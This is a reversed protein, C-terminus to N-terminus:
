ILIIISEFLILFSAICSYIKLKKYRKEINNKEKIEEKANDEEIKFSYENILMEAEKVLYDNEECRKTTNGLEKNYDITQTKKIKKNDKLIVIAEEVINSPFNKLIVMNKLNTDKM